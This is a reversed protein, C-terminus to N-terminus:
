EDEVFSLGRREQQERKAKKAQRRQKEKETLHPQDNGLRVVSGRRKERGYVANLEHKNEAPWLGHRPEGIEIYEPQMPPVPM